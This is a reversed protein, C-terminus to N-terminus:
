RRADHGQWRHTWGPDGPSTVIFYGDEVRVSLPLGNEDRTFQEPM